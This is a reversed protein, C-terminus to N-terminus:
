KTIPESVQGDFTEQKPIPVDAEIWHYVEGVMEDVYVDLVSQPSEDECGKYGAATWNGNPTIAIAIRVKM